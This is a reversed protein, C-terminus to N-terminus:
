GYFGAYQDDQQRNCRLGYSESHLRGLRQRVPVMPNPSVVTCEPIFRLSWAAVRCWRAAVPHRDAGNFDVDVGYIKAKAANVLIQSAGKITTLQIDSYDYYFTSANLQLRHDLLQSKIGIEYADLTEPKVVPDTPSTLNYVGSKFGRSYSAYAMVDGSFQHDLAIRWTPKNFTSKESIDFLPVAFGALLDGYGTSNLKREDHTYRAGLTLNTDRAM